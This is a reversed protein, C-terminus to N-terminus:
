ARSAMGTYNLTITALKCTDQPTTLNLMRIQPAISAPLASSGAPVTYPGAFVRDVVFNAPGNCSGTGVFAVTLSEIKLAFNYPNTVTLNLDSLGGPRLQTVANGSVTFSRTALTLVRPGTTGANSSADAQTVTITYDGDASGSNSLVPSLAFTWAGAVCSATGTWNSPGVITVSVTAVDGAATGCAGGISSVQVNTTVPFIITSGNVVTSGNIMTLTVFPATTDATSVTIAKAGSTGTNAAADTQTATVSYSGVTLTVTDTWTGATCPVTDTRTVTGAIAVKVSASDGAATGCTGGISTVNAASTYPFTAAAGNVKTVAVTPVTKDITITTVGSTGINGTTDTQLAVATYTGATSRSVTATWAGATCPVTSVSSTPGVITVLVTAIDGATAGCAGGISTVNANTSLPFTATAGNVKTITVVPATGDFTYTEGNFTATLTNGAADKITAANSLDLRTTPNATPTGPGSTASLTYVTAAGANPTISLLAPSGLGTSQLSFNSLGVSVVPESFTVAWRVTGFAHPNPDLRTISVVTPRTADVSWTRTAPASQATGVKSLVRFTHSGDALSGYSVTGTKGATAPCAVFASADLSCVFNVNTASSYAFTATRVNVLGTPGSTITPTAPGTEAKASRITTGLALSVVAALVVALTTRRNTMLHRISPM